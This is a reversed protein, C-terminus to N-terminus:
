AGSGKPPPGKPPKSEQRRSLESATRALQVFGAIMGLLVGGAVGFPSSGLWWDLGFGAAAGVVLCSVLNTGVMFALGLLRM